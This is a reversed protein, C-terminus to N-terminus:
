KQQASKFHIDKALNSVMSSPDERLKLILLRYDPTLEHKSVYQITRYKIYSYQDQLLQEILSQPIESPLKQFCGKMMSQRFNINHSNMVRKIWADGSKCELAFAMELAASRQYWNWHEDSAISLLSEREELQHMRLIKSDVIVFQDIGHVILAVFGLLIWPAFLNLRYM